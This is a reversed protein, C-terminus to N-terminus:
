VWNPCCIIQPCFCIRELTILSYYSKFQQSNSCCSVDKTSTWFDNISNHTCQSYYSCCSRSANFSKRWYNKTSLSLASALSSKTIYRSYILRINTSSDSYWWLWRFTTTSLSFNWDLVYQSRGLHSRPWNLMWHMWSSLWLLSNWYQIKWAWMRWVHCNTRNGLSNSPDWRLSRPLDLWLWHLICMRPLLKHRIRMIIIYLWWEHHEHFSAQM